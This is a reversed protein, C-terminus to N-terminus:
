ESWPEGLGAPALRPALGGAPGPVPEFSSAVATLADHDAFAFVPALTELRAVHRYRGDALVVVDHLQPRPDGRWSGGYHYRFGALGAASRFPIAGVAGKLILGRRQEDALIRDFAADAGEVSPEAPHVTLRTRQRPFGPPYFTAVLGHPVALWGAPPEYYFRRRRVGLGFSASTLLDRTVAAVEGDDVVDRSTGHLLTAFEDILVAGVHHRVRGLSDEGDLVQWAAHEGEATVLRLPAARATGPPAVLRDVLVAFPEVPLREHYVVRGSRSPHSLVVRQVGVEVLWGQPPTIVV